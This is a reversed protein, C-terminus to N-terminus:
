RLYEIVINALDKIMHADLDILAQTRLPYTNPAYLDLYWTPVKIKLEECRYVIGSVHQCIGGFIQHIKKRQAATLEHLFQNVHKSDPSRLGAEGWYCKLAYVREEYSLVRNPNSLVLEYCISSAGITRM